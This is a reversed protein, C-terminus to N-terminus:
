NLYEAPMPMPSEKGSGLKWSNLVVISSEPNFFISESQTGKDHSRDQFINGDTRMPNNLTDLLRSFFLVDSSQANVMVM